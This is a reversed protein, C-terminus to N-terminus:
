HAQRLYRGTDQAALNQTLFDLVDGSFHVNLKVPKGGYMAPNNGELALTVSLGQKGDSGLALSLVKYHFDKLMERLMAIQEQDGPIVEPPMTLKGESEAALLGGQPLPMEGARVRLPLIGSVLGTAMGPKGILGGLLADVSVRTVKVPLTYPAGSFPITVNKMEVKGGYWPMAFSLLSLASDSPKAYPFRFGFKSQYAKDDSGWDGKMALTKSDADFSGAANTSPLLLPLNQVVIGKVNWNGHWNGADGKHLPDLTLSAADVEIEGWKIHADKLEINQLEGRLLALPSYSVNLHDLTLPYGALTLSLARLHLSDLGVAEVKLAVGSLGQQQLTSILKREILDRWPTLAVFLAACASFGLLWYRKRM